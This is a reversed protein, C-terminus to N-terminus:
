RTRILYIPEFQVTLDFNQGNPTPIISVGFRDYAAIFESQPLSIVHSADLISFVIDVRETAGVYRYAELDSGYNVAGLFDHSYILDMFTRYAFFVPKPQQNEDLLGGMRWGPGDLTFWIYGTINDAMARPFSRPVVDAQLDAFEDYHGPQCWSCIMGTESIFLPLNVGYQAMITRLFAAKGRM